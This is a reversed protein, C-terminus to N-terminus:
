SARQLLWDDCAANADSTLGAKSLGEKFGAEFIERPTMLREVKAEATKILNKTLDRCEECVWGYKQTYFVEVDNKCCWTCTSIQLQGSM